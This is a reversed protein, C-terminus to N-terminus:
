ISEARQGVGDSSMHCRFFHISRKLEDNLMLRLKCNFHFVNCFKVLPHRLERRRDTLENHNFGAAEIACVLLERNLLLVEFARVLLQRNLLLAKIPRFPSILIDACQEINLLPTEILGFPAEIVGFLFVSGGLFSVFFRLLPLFLQHLFQPITQIADEILQRLGLRSLSM